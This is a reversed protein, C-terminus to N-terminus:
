ANDHLLMVKRRNAVAPRKELLTENLRNLQLQYRDGTISENPKLLEYYVVDQMDWWIYLTTKYGHINRKPTSTSSQGPDVHSKANPIILISGSKM